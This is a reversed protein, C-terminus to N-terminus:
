SCTACTRVQKSTRSYSAGVQAVKRPAQMLDHEPDMWQDVDDYSVSAHQPECQEEYDQPDVGNHAGGGDDDDDSFGAFAEATSNHMHNNDATHRHRTRQTGAGIVCNPKLFLQALAAAQPCM